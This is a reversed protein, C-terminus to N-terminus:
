NAMGGLTARDAFLEEFLDRVEDEHMARDAVPEAPAAALGAERILEQFRKRAAIVTELDKGLSAAVDFESVVGLKLLEAWAKSEKSPDVHPISPWLWSAKFRRPGGPLIQQLEAERLVASLIPNLAKRALWGQLCQNGRNYRQGDFRASSYNMGSSDLKVIMAPMNVPRGIERMRDHRYSVHNITPYEPKILEPKWGPVMTRIQGREFEVSGDFEIYKADDHDTFLLVGWDAAARAADLVSQDFSRIDEAAQASPGLWPWGRVQGSELLKFGHIINGAAIRRPETSAGLISEDVGFDQIYYAVPRGTRSREVGQITLGSLDGGLPNTLRRPHIDLLRLAIGSNFRRRDSVHQVLFEGCTWLNRIWLELLDTGSLQGNFDPSEWFEEWIDEAQENWEPDDSEIQLSPGDAGVLDTVHTNIVGGVWPNNEAAALARARATALSVGIENNISTDAANQWQPSNLRNTEAVDFRGGREFWTGARAFQRRIWSLM